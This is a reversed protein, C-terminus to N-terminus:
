YKANQTFNETLSMRRIKRLICTEGISVIMMLHWVRNELFFLFCSAWPGSHEGSSLHTSGVPLGLGLISCIFNPHLIRLLYRKFTNVGSALCCCVVAWGILEPSRHALFFFLVFGTIPSINRKLRLRMCCITESSIVKLCNKLKKKKKKKKKRQM